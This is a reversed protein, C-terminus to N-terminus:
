ACRSPRPGAPRDCRLLTTEGIRAPYPFPPRGVDRPLTSYRKRPPTELFQTTGSADVVVMGDAAVPHNPGAAGARGQARDRLPHAKLMRSDFSAKIMFDQAGLRMAELATTEDGM